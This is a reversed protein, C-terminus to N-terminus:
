KIDKIKLSVLLGILMISSLVFFSDKFSPVFILTPIAVVPVLIYAISEANRFFSIKNDERKKISKFFYSESMVEILAFGIRTTFLVLAWLWFDAKEIFPIMMTSSITVLFGMILIKKEGIKDSLEGVPFELFIYPLLMITFLYGIQTWAFGVYEHLYIPTYIIMWAYFFQLLLDIFYITFINKNKIFLKFTKLIPAKIYKPDKFTKLSFIFILSVAAMCIAAFLYIGRFSSKLIISGSILQSIVWASNMVVLYLGRFKGISDKQSYNEVFIDLCAIIFSSSIFYIIFASITILANSKISILVYAIFSLLSFFLVTKRNGLYTLIYPLRSILIITLLSALIYILGVYDKQMYAELFSSNIYSTIALSISFLFGALYVIRRDIKM